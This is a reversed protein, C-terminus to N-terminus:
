GTMHLMASEFIMYAIKLEKMNHTMNSREQLGCVKDIKFCFEIPKKQKIQIM